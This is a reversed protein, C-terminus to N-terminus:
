YYGSYLMKVVCVVMEVSDVVCVDDDVMGDVVVVDVVLVNM